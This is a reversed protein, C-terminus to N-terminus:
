GKVAEATMGSPEGNVDSARRLEGTAPDFRFAFCGGLQSEAKHDEGDSVIGYPPDPFWVTYDSNVVLDNPSNPWKFQDRNVVIEDRPTSLGANFRTCVIASQGHSCHLRSGRAESWIAGTSLHELAGAGQGVSALQPDLVEIM